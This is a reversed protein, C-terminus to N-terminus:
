IKQYIFNQILCCLSPASAEEKKQKVNDIM